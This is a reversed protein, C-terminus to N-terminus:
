AWRLAPIARDQYRLAEAVYKPRQSPGLYALHLASCAPIGHMLFPFEAAIQSVFVGFAKKETEPSCSISLYM